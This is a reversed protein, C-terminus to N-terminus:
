YNNCAKIFFAFKLQGLRAIPFLSRHNLANIGLAPRNRRVDNDLAFIMKKQYSFLANGVFELIATLAFPQIVFSNVASQNFCKLSYVLPRFNPM